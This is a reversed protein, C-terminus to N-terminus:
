SWVFIEDEDPSYGIFMALVIRLNEGEIAPVEHVCGSNFIYMDGAELEVRYSEINKEATYEHFTGGALHPQVEPSWVCRHVVGQATRGAGSANQLCLVAGFQYEFRFVSYDTRPDRIKVHDIHPTYTQGEYHIRFIAPAYLRGDPERAVKVEKGVALSSLVDYIPTIPSDMDEFLFKFLRYTEAVHAFFEEKDHGRNGLSSGIDIRPRKDDWDLFIPAVPDRMLGLRIFRQILPVCQTPDYVQRLVIAPIRVEALAQLPNGYHALINQVDPEAPRWQATESM